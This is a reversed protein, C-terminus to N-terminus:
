GVELPRCNFGAVVPRGVVGTMVGVGRRVGRGFERPVGLGSEPRGLERDMPLLCCEDRWATGPLAPGSARGGDDDPRSDLAM